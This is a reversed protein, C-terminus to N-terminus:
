RAVRRRWIYGCGVSLLKQSDSIQLQSWWMQCELCRLINFFLVGFFYRENCPSRDITMVQGGGAGFLTFTKGSATQGFCFCTSSGGAIFNDLLDRVSGEFLDLTSDFEGFSSDFVFKHMHEYKTLDVQFM